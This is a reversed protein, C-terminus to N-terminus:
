PACALLTPRDREAQKMDEIWRRYTTLDEAGSADIYVILMAAALVAVVLIKPTSKLVHM